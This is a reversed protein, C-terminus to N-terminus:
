KEQIEKLDALLYDKDENQIQEAYQFAKELSERKKEENQNIKYARAFAEYAYGFSFHSLNNKQTVELCKQAFFLSQLANKAVAYVRSLMWYGTALNTPEAKPNKSWHWFSTHALHIITELEESSKEPKELIDWIQNFCDVAFYNNAKEVREKEEENM